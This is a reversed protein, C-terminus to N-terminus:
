ANIRPRKMGAREKFAQYRWSQEVEIDVLGCMAEQVHVSTAMWRLCQEPDVTRALAGHWSTAVTEPLPLATAGLERLEAEVEVLPFRDFRRSAEVLLPEASEPDYILHPVIFAPLEGHRHQDVLPSCYPWLWAACDSGKGYLRREISTSSHAFTMSCRIYGDCRSVMVDDIARVLEAYTAQRFETCADMYEGTMTLGQPM